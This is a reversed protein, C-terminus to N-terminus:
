ASYPEEPTISPWVPRSSTLPHTPETRKQHACLKARSSGYCRGRWGTVSMPVVARRADVVAFLVFQVPTSQVLLLHKHDPFSPDALPDENKFAGGVNSLLSQLPTANLSNETHSRGCQLFTPENTCRDLGALEVFECNLETGIQALAQAWIASRDTRNHRALQTM